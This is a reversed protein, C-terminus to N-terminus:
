LGKIHMKKAVYHAIVGYALPKYSGLDLANAQIASTLQDLKAQKKLVAELVVLPKGSPTENSAIEFASLVMGGKVLLPQARWVGGITKPTARHGRKRGRGRRSSRKKGKKAM